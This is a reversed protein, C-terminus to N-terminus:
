KSVCSFVHKFMCKKVKGLKFEKKSVMVIIDITDKVFDMDVSLALKECITSLVYVAIDKKKYGKIKDRNGIVEVVEMTEILLRPINIEEKNKLMDISLDIFDKIEKKEKENLFYVVRTTSSENDNETM